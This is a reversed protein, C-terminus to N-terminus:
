IPKKGIEATFNANVRPNLQPQAGLEDLNLNLTQVVRAPLLVAPCAALIIFAFYSVTLFGLSFHMKFAFPSYTLVQSRAPNLLYVLVALCSFALELM